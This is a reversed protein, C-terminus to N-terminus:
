ESYSKKKGISQIIQGPRQLGSSSSSNSGTDGLIFCSSM